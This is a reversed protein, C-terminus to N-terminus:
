SPADSLLARSVFLISTARAVDDGYGGPHRDGHRKWALYATGEVVLRAAAEANPVPAFVGQEIRLVIWRELRELLGSRSRGFYLAAM